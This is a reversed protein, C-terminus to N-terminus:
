WTTLLHCTLECFFGLPNPSVVGGPEIRGPVQESEVTWVRRWPGKFHDDSVKHPPGDGWDQFGAVGADTSRGVTTQTVTAILAWPAELSSAPSSKPSHLLPETRLSESDLM